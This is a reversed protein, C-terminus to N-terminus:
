SAAILNSPFLFFVKAVGSQSAKKRKRERKRKWLLSSFTQTGTSSLLDSHVLDNEEM